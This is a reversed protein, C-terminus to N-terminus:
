LSVDNFNMGRVAAQEKQTTQGPVLPTGTKFLLFIIFLLLLIILLKM